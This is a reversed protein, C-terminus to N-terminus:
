ELAASLTQRLPVEPHEAVFRGNIMVLMQDLLDVNLISEGPLVEAVESPSLGDFNLDCWRLTGGQQIAPGHTRCILPRAAYVSCHGRADLFACRRGAQADPARAQEAIAAQESTTLTSLYRRVGDIEIAWASRRVRCCQDCGAACQLSDAQQAEARSM